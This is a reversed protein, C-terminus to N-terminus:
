TLQKEVYRRLGYLMQQITESELLIDEAEQEQLYDLVHALKVQTHLESTSGLAINIHRRYTRHGGSAAGEAINSPISIAARNIQSKLEYDREFELPKGLRYIRSVLQFSRQYVELNEYFNAM